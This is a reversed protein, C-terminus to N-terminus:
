SVRQTSVLKWVVFPDSEECEHAWDYASWRHDGLLSDVFSIGHSDLWQRHQEDATKRAVTRQYAQESNMSPNIGVADDAAYIAFVYFKDDQHAARIANFTQRSAEAIRQRLLNFNVQSMRNGLWRVKIDSV